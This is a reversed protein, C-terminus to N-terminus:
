LNSYTLRTGNWSTHPRCEGAYEALLKGMQLIPQLVFPARHLSGPDVHFVAVPSFYSRRIRSALVSELIYPLVM